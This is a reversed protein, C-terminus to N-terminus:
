CCWKASEGQRSICNYGMLLRIGQRPNQFVLFWIRTIQGKYKNKLFRSFQRNLETADLKFVWNAFFVFRGPVPGQSCPPKYSTDVAKPFCQKAPSLWCCCGHLRYMVGSSPTHHQNYWQGSHDNHDSPFKAIKMQEKKETNGSLACCRPSCLLIIQFLSRGLELYLPYLSPAIQPLNQGREKNAGAMSPSWSMLLAPLCSILRRYRWRTSVVQDM